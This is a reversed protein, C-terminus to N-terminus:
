KSTNIKCHIVRAPPINAKIIATEVATNEFFVRKIKQLDSYADKSKGFRVLGSITSTGVYEAFSITGDKKILKAYRELISKVSEKSPLSNLPVTSIIADFIKEENKWQQISTNRIFVNHIKGFKRKLVECLVPDIEVLYLKDQPRLKKILHESIGGAGAGVELYCRSAKGKLSSVHSLLEKAVYPSLEFPTGLTKPHKIFQWAFTASESVKGRVNSIVENVPAIAQKVNSLVSLVTM